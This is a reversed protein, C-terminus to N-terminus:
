RRGPYLSSNVTDSFVDVLFNATNAQVNDILIDRTCGTSSLILLTLALASIWIRSTKM